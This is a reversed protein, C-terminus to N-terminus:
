FLKKVIPNHLDKPLSEEEQIKELLGKISDIIKESIQFQLNMKIQETYINLKPNHKIKEYFGIIGFELQFMFFDPHFSKRNDIFILINRASYSISSIAQEDLIKEDSLLYTVNLLERM